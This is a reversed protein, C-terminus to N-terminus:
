PKNQKVKAKELASKAFLQYDLEGSRDALGNRLKELDQAAAKSYDANTLSELQIIAYNGDPLLVSTVTKKAPDANPRLDFVAALLQGPLTKDQWDVNAKKTWELHYRKALAEPSEGTELAHQINYAQLGAQKQGQEKQLKQKIQDRVAALPQDQSAQQEAMRLVLFSGNSLEILQSNNNQKLVEDNFLAALIKPDSFLPDNKIGQKTMWASTQVPLNMAKAAEDLSSPNTYALDELQESKAALLQNLQQQEIRQEINAKVDALTKGAFQSANEQYFQQVSEPTIKVQSKLSEPSLLIYAAKVQEPTKFEATHQQYYASIQEETPQVAATLPASPLTFYGFSRQQYLLGYVQQLEASTIFSSAHIGTSLQDVLLSNQLSTLFEEPTINNDSLIQQFREPSFRGNEQFNPLQLIEQQVEAASFTFGMKKATQLLVQDLILQQLALDQLQQQGREDLAGGQQTYSRQLAQYANSLQRQSIQAGNVTAVSNQQSSGRTVYYELGWFIFAAAIIAIIVWAIWGQIHKSITQLMLFSGFSPIMGPM